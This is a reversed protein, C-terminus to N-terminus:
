ERPELKVLEFCTHPSIVWVIGLLTIFSMMGQYYDAKLSQKAGLLGLLSSKAKDWTADLHTLFQIVLYFGNAMLIIPATLCLHVDLICPKVTSLMHRCLNKRWHIGRLHWTFITIQRWVRFCYEGRKNLFFIRCLWILADQMHYSILVWFESSLIFWCRDADAVSM